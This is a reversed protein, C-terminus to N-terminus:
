SVEGILYSVLRERQWEQECADAAANAAAAAYAAAYAANAAAADAAAGAAYAAYVAADAAACAAHSPAHAAAAYAAHAPASAARAAASAALRHEECPCAVWAYAAEIAQRPRLDDLHRREFIPLVRAAVDCAWSVQRGQSGLARIAERRQSQDMWEILPTASAWQRAEACGLRAAMVVAKLTIAGSRLRETIERTRDAVDDRLRERQALRDAADSNHRTARRSNLGRKPNGAAPLTGSRPPLSQIAVLDGTLVSIMHLRQWEREAQRAAAYADACAYAAAAAAYAAAAADAADAAAAAAYAYAADAAAAAAAYAYADADAYADAYAYTDADAYAAAAVLRHEECPCAAWARAAEIAARPRLDGHHATEFLPLAHAAFDAALRVLLPSELGAHRLAHRVPYSRHQVPVPVWAPACQAAATDGLWGAVALHHPSVLGARLRDLLVSSRPRPLGRMDDRERSRFDVDSNRRTMTSRPPPNMRATLKKVAIAKAKTLATRPSEGAQIVVFIPDDTVNVSYARVRYARTRSSSIDETETDITGAFAGDAFVDMSSTSEDVREMRGFTVIM